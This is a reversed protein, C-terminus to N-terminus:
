ITVTQASERLKPAFNCIIRSRHLVWCHTNESIAEGAPMIFAGGSIGFYWASSNHTM